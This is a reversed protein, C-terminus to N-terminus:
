GKLLSGWDIGKAWTYLGSGISAATAQQNQRLAQLTNVLNIYSNAGSAAASSSGGRATNGLDALSLGLGQLQGVAAPRLTQFMSSVLHATDYPIQALTTTRAGGRPAFQSTTDFANSQNTGINSIEPGLVSSMATRDGGALRSWYDLATSLPGLGMGTYLGGVQAGQAANAALQGSLATQAKLADKQSGSPGAFASGLLSGGLGIGLPILSTWSFPQTGSGSGTSQGTPNGYTGSGKNGSGFIGGLINGITNGLNFGGTSGPTGPGGYGGSGPGGAMFGNQGLYDGWNGYQAPLLGPINPDPWQFGGGPGGMPAGWGIGGVGSTSGFGSGGTSWWPTYSGSGPDFPNWDPNWPNDSAQGM